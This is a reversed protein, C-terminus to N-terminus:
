SVAQQPYISHLEDDLLHASAVACCPEPGDPDRAAARKLPGFAHRKPEDLVLPAPGPAIGGITRGTSIGWSLVVLQRSIITVLCSRRCASSSQMLGCLSSSYRM